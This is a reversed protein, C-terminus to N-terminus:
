HVYSSTLFYRARRARAARGAAEVRSRCDLKRLINRVHMDVTRPSLFLTRRSRATRAGSPSCGCSRSSAGRCGPATPTRRPAARRAPPRGVRRARRGRRAAEAALPRAGLKRASRYADCLRELASSASARRPRARRGARLEIQAREFPMDLTATCSSPARCSSPRPTRRRRRAAGDRRDRPRARRARRSARDGLRDPQAGRRLRARRRPRRPAAFFTAAWRLGGIAYHHDDSDSWRRLMARCHEAAEDDAGEAAAVRALAATSDVTM